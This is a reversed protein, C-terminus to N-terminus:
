FTYGVSFGRFIAPLFYVLSLKDTNTYFTPTYCVSYMFKGIPKQYRYGIRFTYGLINQWRYHKSNNSSSVKKYESLVGGGLEIHHTNGYLINGLGLIYRENPNYSGGIRTAVTLKPKIYFKREYNLSYLGVSANGLAETFVTNKKLRIKEEKKTEQALANFVLLCFLFVSARM